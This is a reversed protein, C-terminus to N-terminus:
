SIFLRSVIEGIKRTTLPMIPMSPNAAIANFEKSSASSVNSKFNNALEKAYKIKKYTEIKALNGHFLLFLFSVSRHSIKLPQKRLGM